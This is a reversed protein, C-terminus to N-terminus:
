DCVTSHSLTTGEKVILPMRKKKKKKQKSDDGSGMDAYMACSSVRSACACSAAVDSSDLGAFAYFLMQALSYTNDCCGHCILM